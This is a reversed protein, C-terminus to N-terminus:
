CPARRLRLVVGADLQLEVEWAPVSAVTRNPEAPLEVFVPAPARSVARPPLERFRSCWRRLTSLGIDMEACFREQTQGSEEYRAVLVQWQERSRRIRRHTGPTSINEM